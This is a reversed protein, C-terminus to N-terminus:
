TLTWALAAAWLIGLACVLMCLTAFARTSM